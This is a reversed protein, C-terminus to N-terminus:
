PKAPLPPWPENSPGPTGERLWRWALYPAGLLVSVGVLKLFSRLLFRLM